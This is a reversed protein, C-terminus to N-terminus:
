QASATGSENLTAFGMTANAMRCWIVTSAFNSLDVADPIPYRQEGTTSQLGGLNIYRGSESEEYGQPPQEVTDLLVQLDPAQDTTSFASDLVLYRVGDEEVIKASGTTPAEAAEFAGNMIEQSTSQAIESPVSKLPASPPLSVVKSSGVGVLAALGIVSSAIGLRFSHGLKM